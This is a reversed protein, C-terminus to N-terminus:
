APVLHIEITGDQMHPADLAPSLAGMGKLPVLQPRQAPELTLAFRAIWPHSPWREIVLVAQRYPRPGLGTGPNKALTVQSQELRFLQLDLTSHRILSRCFPEITAIAL